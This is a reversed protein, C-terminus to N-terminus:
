SPKTSLSPLSCLLSHTVKSSVLQAKCHAATSCIGYKYQVYALAQPIIARDLENFANFVDLQLSVWSLGVWRARDYGSRFSGLPSFLYVLDTFNMQKWAADVPVFTTLQEGKMLEQDLGCHQIVSTFSYCVFPLNLSVHCTDVPPLLVWDTQDRSSCQSRRCSLRSQCYVLPSFSVLKPKYQQLDIQLTRFTNKNGSM